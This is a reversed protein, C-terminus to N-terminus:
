VLSKTVIEFLNDSLKGSVSLKELQAKMLAGRASDMQKWQTLPQVVRASVQPNKADILQTQAALLEYGEGNKDHFRVTNQGFTVLLAYVKNPNSIDFAPHQLLKKVDGIVTPLLSSAQLALWKNVVLMDHQYQDYFDALAKERLLTAHDNLASLAGLQDTMNNAHTAQDFAMAQYKEKGTKLLYYLAINKVRRHGSDSVDYKYEGTIQNDNFLQLWHDELAVAITNEVLSKAEFIIALDIKPIHTLLYKLSPFLFLRSLLNLDAMPTEILTKISQIWLPDICPKKESSMAKAVSEVVNVMLRQGAEWRCFADSDCQLLLALQENTYDYQMEVPASFHRLLSPAPDEMVNIFTFIEEPKKIELIKTGQTVCEEGALQLDLDECNAGILGMAFPMHFPLKSEQNPTSPCSQKIVVEYTKKAADYRTKVRLIPTGAQHYWRSFQSLDKGSADEMAKIFDETTVAQGDYRSFYLDMAKRFVAPTLLTRVMRIVEAGKEYVTATYFNDIKMYSDPRIPHAMPGADEPFQHNRVTNVVDIRAVGVSTMDETFHQDRCVTLGEKLTLQFWDRCTVRNGSWNHFYEHGVVREINIYDTDTATQPKALIYKTNFINLGKNEMAGMNFDSVAVTMFRDLDYERGFKEEDWKMSKKLALMAYDGQDRCGKELYLYLDVKRKSMTIFHDQILDFDGAVLAFLYCPKLSPDEWHVWHRNGGLEKEEILNGNSLLIPFQTKDASITTTFHSMVDPRDLFYTIHRFGEAECQTCLNNRSQYLGMLATNKHPYIIVHTELRFQAPVSHIKLHTDTIAYDDVSLSQGDIFIAELKLAEGDLVLSVPKSTSKPNRRVDLISRVLTHDSQVDFHLHIKEILFDPAIYNKLHTAQLTQSM